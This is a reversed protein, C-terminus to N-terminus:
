LMKKPLSGAIKKITKKVPFVAAYPFFECREHLREVFRSKLQKPAFRGSRRGFLAVYPHRCSSSAPAWSFRNLRQVL